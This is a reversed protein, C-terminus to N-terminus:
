STGRVSGNPAAPGQDHKLSSVHAATLAAAVSQVGTSTRTAEAVEHGAAARRGATDADAPPAAAATAPAAPADGAARPTATAADADTAQGVLEDGDLDAMTLMGHRPNVAGLQVGGGAEVAQVIQHTDYLGATRRNLTFCERRIVTRARSKQWEWSTRFLNVPVLRLGWVRIRKLNVLKVRYEALGVVRADLQEAEQAILYFDWGKKRHQRAFRNVQRRRERHEGGKMSDRSDLEDGAEDFIAVGRGEIPQGRRVPLEIRSLDLYDEVFVVRRRWEACRRARARPAFRLWSANAIREAWDPVLVVNTAVYRGKKVSQEILRVTYYTKGAGPAGEM